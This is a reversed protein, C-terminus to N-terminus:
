RDASYKRPRGSLTPALARLVSVTDQASLPAVRVPEFRRDLAADATVVRHYDAETLAGMCAIEGRALAPKLQGAVGLDRGGFEVANQFEDLFLVIGPKRAAQVLEQTLEMLHPLHESASILGSISVEVLRMDRLEEPVEGAAVRGGLGEAIATKGAGPPGVLLPNRKLRRCLVEIVEDLVADRGIVEGLKGERALATLDRGFRELIGGNHRHSRGSAEGRKPQAAGSSAIDFREALAAGLHRLDTVKDGAEAARRAASALLSGLDRDVSSSVRPEDAVEDVSAIRALM